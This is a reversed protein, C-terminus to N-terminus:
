ASLFCNTMCIKTAWDNCTRKKKGGDQNSYKDLMLYIAMEHQQKSIM